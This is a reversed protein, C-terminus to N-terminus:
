KNCNKECAACNGSCLNTFKQKKYLKIQKVIVFIVIMIAAVAILIDIM